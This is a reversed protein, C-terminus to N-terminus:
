VSHAEDVYVAYNGIKGYTGKSLHDPILLLHFSEM